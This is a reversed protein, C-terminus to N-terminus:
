RLAPSRHLLPSQRNRLPPPNFKNGQVIRVPPPIQRGAKWHSSPIPRGYRVRTRPLRPRGAPLSKRRSRGPRDKARCGGSPARNGPTQNCAQPLCPRYPTQPASRGPTRGPPEALVDVGGPSPGGTGPPDNVGRARPARRAPRATQPSRRSRSPAEVGSRSALGPTAPANRRGAMAPRPRVPPVPRPEIVPRAPRNSRRPNEDCM